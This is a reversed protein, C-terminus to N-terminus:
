RELLPLYTTYPPQWGTIFDWKASTASTVGDSAVTYWEYQTNSTLGNWAMSVDTGSPVNNSTGILSYGMNYPLTFQDDPTTHYQDLYPSYTQVQIQNLSPVFKM